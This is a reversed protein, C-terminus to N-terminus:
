GGSLIVGRYNKEPFAALIKGIYPIMDIEVTGKSSFDINM